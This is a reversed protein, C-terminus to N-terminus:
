RDEVGRARDALALLRARLQEDTLEAATDGLAVIQELLWGRRGLEEAAAGLDTLYAPRGTTRPQVVSVAWRMGCRCAWADTSRSGGTWRVGDVSGCGPCLVEESMAAGRAHAVEIPEGDLSHPDALEAMALLWATLQRMHNPLLFGDAGITGPQSTFRIELDTVGINSPWPASLEDYRSLQVEVRPSDGPAEWHRPDSHHVLYDSYSGHLAPNCWQPCPPQSAPVAVPPVPLATQSQSM